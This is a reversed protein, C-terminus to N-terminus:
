NGVQGIAEGGLELVVLGGGSTTVALVPKTEASGLLGPAFRVADPEVDLSVTDIHGDPLRTVKVDLGGRGLEIWCLWVGRATPLVDLGIVADSRTLAEVQPTSRKALWATRLGGSIEGVSEEVWVALVRDEHSAAQSLLSPFGAPARVPAGAGQQNVPMVVGGKCVLIPLHKGLFGRGTPVKESHVLELDDGRLRHVALTPGRRSIGWVWAGDGDARAVPLVAPAYGLGHSKSPGLVGEASLPYHIVSVGGPREKLLLLLFGDTAPVVAKALVGEASTPLVGLLPERGRRLVCWRVSQTEEGDANLWLVAVSDGSRAACVDHFKVPADPDYAAGVAAVSKLQTDSLGIAGPDVGSLDVDALDLESLDVGDLIADALVAGHLKAGTLIAGTLNAGSLDAASLDAGTLDAGALHSEDLRAGMLSANVFVVGQGRLRSALVSDLRARTFNAGSVQGDSLDARRLDADTFDAKHLQAEALDAQPWQAGRADVEVLRAGTLRVGEGRTGTLVAEKLDARSLEAETLDAKDLWAEKLRARTALARTLVMETGDIGTMSTKYLSADTLNTASLDAKDLNAGSLDVGTLDVGALDAAFFDLRGRAGRQQNFGDVDGSALLELLDM